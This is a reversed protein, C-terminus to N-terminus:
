QVPCVLQELVRRQRAKRALENKRQRNKDIKAREVYYTPNRANFALTHRKVREKHLKSYEVRRGPRMEYRHKSKASCDLCTKLLRNLKNRRFNKVEKSHKCSTCVRQMIRQMNGETQINYNEM